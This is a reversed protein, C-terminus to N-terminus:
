AEVLLTGRTLSKTLASNITSGKTAAGSVSNFWPPVRYPNWALERVEWQSLARRYIRVDDMKGDFYAGSGLEPNFKAIYIGNTKWDLTITKLAKGVVMGNLYLALVAGDSTAACHNWNKNGTLDGFGGTSGIVSQRSAGSGSLIEFRLLNSTLSQFVAAGGSSTVGAYMDTGMFLPYNQGDTDRKFWFAFSFIQGTRVSSNLTVYDNSGDFDLCYNNVYGGRWSPSNSLTGTTGGKSDITSTTGSGEPFKFHATLGSTIDNAIRM